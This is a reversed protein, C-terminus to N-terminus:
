GMAPIVANIKDKQLHRHTSNNNNHNNLRTARVIRFKDQTNQCISLSAPIESVLLM